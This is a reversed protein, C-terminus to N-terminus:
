KARAKQLAEMREKVVPDNKLAQNLLNKRQNYNTRYNQNDLYRKFHTVLETETMENVKLCEAVNKFNLNYM